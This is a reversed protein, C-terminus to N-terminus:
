MSYKGKLYVSRSGLIKDTSKKYLKLHEPFYYFEPSLEFNYVCRSEFYKRCDFDFLAKKVIAIDEKSKLPAFNDWRECCLAGVKDAKDFGDFIFREYKWVGKKYARHLPLDVINKNFFSLNFCYFGINIYSFEKVNSIDLYEIIKVKEKVLALVGKNDEKESIVCKITVENNQNKHFGLIAKDVPDFLPNEIAM